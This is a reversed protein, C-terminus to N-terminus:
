GAVKAMLKEMLGLNKETAGQRSRLAALANEGLEKCWEPHALWDKMTQELRAEDQIQVAGGRELMASAAERFNEMHPGFAVPKAFAAPELPNQGGWGLLSKGIFVYDALAYMKALQGTIDLLLVPESGPEADRNASFSHCSFGSDLIAREVEAKREPHRPALLLRLRPFSSKLARYVRLVAAEEVAHTSGAVWLLHEGQLAFSKRLSEQEEESPPAPVRDFKMNGTVLVKERDAGMAMMREADADSQMALVDIWNLVSKWFWRTKRYRGFSRDSIRGNVLLVPTGRRHLEYLVRPWLETEVIVFLDPRFRSLVRKVAFSFDLPLYVAADVGEVKQALRQGTDTVTSVVVAWDPHKEKFRRILLSVTGTEGVSVAHIWCVRRGALAQLKEPDVAGFRERLGARYKRTQLMRILYYPSALLLYLMGLLDYWILM